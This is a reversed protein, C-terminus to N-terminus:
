KSDHLIINQTHKIELAHRLNNSKVRTQRVRPLLCLRQRAELLEERSIKGCVPYNEDDFSVHESIEKARVDDESGGM